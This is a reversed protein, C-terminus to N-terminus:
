KDHNGRITQASLERIRSTVENPAPGYGVVDGLCVIQEWSGHAAALAANLATANGHLDSLVLIRMERFMGFLAVSYLHLSQCHVSRLAAGSRIHFAIAALTALCGFRM